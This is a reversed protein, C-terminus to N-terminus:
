LPNVERNPLPKTERNPTPKAPRWKKVTGCGACQLDTTGIIVALGTLLKNGQMIGIPKGCNKCTLVM